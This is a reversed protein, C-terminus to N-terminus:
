YSKNCAPCDWGNIKNGGCTKCYRPVLDLGCTPCKPQNVPATVPPVNVQPKNEDYCWNPDNGIRACNYNVIEVGVSQYNMLAADRQPDYVLPNQGRFRIVQQIREDLGTHADLWRMTPVRPDVFQLGGPPMGKNKLRM